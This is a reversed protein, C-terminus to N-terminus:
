LLDTNISISWTNRYETIEVNLIGAYDQIKIIHEMVVRHRVRPSHSTSNLRREWAEEM